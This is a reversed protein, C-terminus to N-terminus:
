NLVPVVKDKKHQEKTHMHFKREGYRLVYILPLLYLPRPLFEQELLCFTAPAHTFNSKFNNNCQLLIIIIIFKM